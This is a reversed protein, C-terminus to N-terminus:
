LYSDVLKKHSWIATVWNNSVRFLQSGSKQPELYSHGM